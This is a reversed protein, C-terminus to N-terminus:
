NGSGGAVQAEVDEEGWDDEEDEDESTGTDRIGNGQDLYNRLEEEGPWGGWSKVQKVLAQATAVAYDTGDCFAKIAVV